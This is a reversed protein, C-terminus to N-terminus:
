YLRAGAEGGLADPVFRAATQEAQGLYGRALATGGLCLEGPVGVPVPEGRGDLVYTRRGPVARGIPVSGGWAGWSEGAAEYLTATVVAETPGYANLLRAAGEGGDEWARVTPPALAEGGVIMLRLAPKLAAVTARERVLQGWYAPPVNAVTVARGQVQEVFEAPTWVAPDRLTVSAGALLPALAQELFPDFSQAAFVLVRDAATLRYARGIERLHTAAAAHSVLVGKPRGTSGSTYVLYAASEPAVRPLEEGGSDTDAGDLEVVRLEASGAPLRDRLHPQAVVLRVGADELLSAVRAQPHEPDLLLCCGGAELTGLLAVVVDASHEMFFGVVREPGAGERRLRRALSGARRRLAAYTLAEGRSAIAVADPTLAAQEAFLEHVSGRPLEPAAPNWAELVQAREDGSLLSVEALRRSPHEAMSRLLTELHGAMRAVTAAEFLAARHTLTGALADGTDQLVLELDFKAVGEGEGFPDVALEGLALAEHAASRGLAFTEQFLPTHALSREVDLEEVLREFPLDQHEYAGVASERVRGLLEAWTPDGGLDARMALMNVFFGILGETEGRNRGAIPTGVVVDDQGAYRGLLAQWAALTTMFLTARERRSLARLGQSVEAPVTFRLTGARPSQAAARPHDTPIELLPPAGALAHKWYGVQTELVDGTLWARQWVAFDAYQVPLEPLHPEEGRSFAGYLVSVERVLVDLSWGDGVVHHLTFCLVHDDDDLRLLASRLLPGRALDFPLLAEEAALREAEAERGAEPLGRLDLERLEVPASPHVVQVPVGGEEAFTTRLTEHRAVLADLSARLAAPDLSGRLRLAGAMNYAASGPELRDVVWLRQQAFSLPLPGERPVREMPPAPTAGSSRLAEIRGALGAVTRAEFLARLPVEVGFAQRARSVVQTALLSHGGLEFFVDEAGVRDVGLVEAWIGALVEEAATRPAVYRGGGAGHEPAPLARRDVKGNATLPVSELVVFAGPVMHEPLREHLRTRLEEVEVEGVVYAVRRRDGPADERALVVCERVGAQELLASEIEGLEIRFGRVKVQFDLRGLYEVEGAATWRARDGTRYLRAGGERGFADPVFQTATLAPRGLYGRGVQVGGLFLEGPVGVPVPGGGADLVYLRTNAVPRGIPVVRRERPEAAWYTVDVAAETPGYLNHLEVDPLAERFRETLEYPLAEGSCMVRRLTGCRAPEGAELFAALMPPVFHLTTVAEREILESLYAPDRH